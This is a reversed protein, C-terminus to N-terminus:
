IYPKILIGTLIAVAFSVLTGLLYYETKHIENKTDNFRLISKAAVLFGIAEFHNAFIFALIMIREIVGIVFGTKSSPERIIEPQYIKLFEKIFIGAPISIWIYATATLWREQSFGCVTIKPALLYVLLILTAIHLLQDFLFYVYNDKLMSKIKDILAHIPFLVVLFLWWYSWAGVFIYAALTCLFAHLSIWLFRYRDGNKLAVLKDPQLIFDGVFHSALLKIFLIIVIDNM